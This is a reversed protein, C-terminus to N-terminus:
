KPEGNVHCPPYGKEPRLGAEFQAKKQKLCSYWDATVCDPQEDASAILKDLTDIIYQQDRENIPTRFLQHELKNIVAKYNAERNEYREVLPRNIFCYVAWLTRSLFLRVEELCFIYIILCFLSASIAVSPDFQFSLLGAVWLGNIAGLLRM